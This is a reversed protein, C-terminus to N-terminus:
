LVNDGSIIYICCMPWAGSGRQQPALEQRATLAEIYGIHVQANGQTNFLQASTELSYETDQLQMGSVLAAADSMTRGTNEIAGEICENGSKTKM